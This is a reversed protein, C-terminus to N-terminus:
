QYKKLPIGVGVRILDEGNLNLNYGAEILWDKKTKFGLGVGLGILGTSNFTVSPIALLNMKREVKTITTNTETYGVNLNNFKWDYLSDAVIAVEGDVTFLGDPAVYHFSDLHLSSEAIMYRNITDYTTSYITDALETVYVYVKKREGKTYVIKDVPVKVERAVYEVVKVEKGESDCRSLLFIVVGLLLITLKYGTTSKFAEGFKNM